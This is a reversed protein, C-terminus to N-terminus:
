SKKGAAYQELRYCYWSNLWKPVIKYKLQNWIKVLSLFAKFFLRICSDEAVDRSPHKSCLGLLPIVSEFPTCINLNKVFIALNSELTDAGLQM